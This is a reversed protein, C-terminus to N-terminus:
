FCMVHQFILTGRVRPSSGPYLVPRCLYQEHEGCVRPHVTEGTSEPCNTITNGACAPIFRHHTTARWRYRQTGRVRPSSGSVTFAKRGESSHEGCVRPHVAQPRHGAVTEQTNGACAPIFRPQVPHEGDQAHTGRVRPSSGHIRSSLPCTM